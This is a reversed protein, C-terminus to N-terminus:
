HYVIMQITFDWSGSAIMALAYALSINALSITRDKVNVAPAHMKAYLKCHFFNIM